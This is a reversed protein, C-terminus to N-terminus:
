MFVLNSVLHISTMEHVMYKRTMHTIYHFYQLLIIEHFKIMYWFDLNLMILKTMEHILLKTEYKRTM